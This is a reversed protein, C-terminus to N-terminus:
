GVVVSFLAPSCQKLRFVEADDDVDELGGDALEVASIRRDGADYVEDTKMLVDSSYALRFLEGKKLESFRVSGKTTVVEFQM